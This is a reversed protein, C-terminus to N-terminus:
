EKETGCTSLGRQTESKSFRSSIGLALRVEILWLDQILNEKDLAARSGVPSCQLGKRLKTQLWSCIFPCLLGGNGVDFKRECCRSMSDIAEIQQQLKAITENLKEIERESNQKLGNSELEWQKHLTEQKSKQM